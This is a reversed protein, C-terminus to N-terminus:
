QGQLKEAEDNREVEQWLTERILTSYAKREQRAKVKLAKLLEPEVRISLRGSMVQLETVHQKEKSARAGYETTLTRHVQPVALRATWRHVWQVGM